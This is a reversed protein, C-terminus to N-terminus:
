GRVRRAAFAFALASAGLSLILWILAAPHEPALPGDLTSTAAPTTIPDEAVAGTVTLNATAAPGGGAGGENSDVPGTSNEATGGSVAVVNVSFDCTHLPGIAAGSLTIAGSGAVATITADDCSGSV